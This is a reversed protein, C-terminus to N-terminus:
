EQLPKYRKMVYFLSLAVFLMVAILAWSIQFLASSIEHLIIKMKENEDVVANVVWGIKQKKEFFEGDSFSDFMKIARQAVTVQENTQQIILINEMVIYINIASAICIMINVFLIIKIIKQM